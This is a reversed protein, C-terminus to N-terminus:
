EFIRKRLPIALSLGCCSGGLLNLRCDINSNSLFGIDQLFQEDRLEFGNWVLRLSSEIAPPLGLAKSVYKHLALVTQDYALEFVLTKVSEIRVTIQIRDQAWGAAHM